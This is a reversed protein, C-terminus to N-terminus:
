EPLESLVGAEVAAKLSEESISVAVAVYKDGDRVDASKGSCIIVQDKEFIRGDVKGNEQMVQYKAM